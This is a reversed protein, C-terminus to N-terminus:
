LNEDDSGFFELTGDKKYQIRDFRARLSLGIRKKAKSVTNVSVGFKRAIASLSKTTSLIEFVMYSRVVANNRFHQKAKAEVSGKKAKKPQMSRKRARPPASLKLEEREEIEERFDRRGDALKDPDQKGDDM